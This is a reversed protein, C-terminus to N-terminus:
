EVLTHDIESGLMSHPIMYIALLVMSAIIVWLREGRNRYLRYLAILWFIFAFATKNDTLDTGFPWGTWYDGFAHKQVFPGFVLGGLFLLVVTIWALVYTNNRRFIAEFGTRMSFIMALLMFLIHPVLFHAPVYGKFRLIVHDPNLQIRKHNHELIVDYMVKGAAPQEPIFAVLEDGERQMPVETWSDHSKYRRYKFISSIEPNEVKIRVAADAGTEHTRILRYKITEDAIEVNGRVPKTPGTRRQYISTGLTLIITLTWLIFSNVKM